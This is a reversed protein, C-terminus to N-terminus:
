DQRSCLYQTLLLLDDAYVGGGVPMREQELVTRWVDDLQRDVDAQSDFDVGEPAGQRNPTTISHCSRCYTAFFGSAWGDWTVPYGTDLDCADDGTDDTAAPDGSDVVATDDSPTSGAPADAAPKDDGGCSMLLLALWASKM